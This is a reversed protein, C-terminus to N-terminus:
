RNTSSNFWLNRFAWEWTVVSGSKFLSRAKQEESLYREGFILLALYTYTFIYIAQLILQFLVYFWQAISEILTVFIFM